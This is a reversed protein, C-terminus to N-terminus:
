HGKGEIDEMFKRAKKAWPGFPQLRLFGDFNNKAEPYRGLAMYTLGLGYYAGAESGDIEIAKKFGEEAAAYDGRDYKLYALRMVAAYNRPEISLARGYAEAAKDLEGRYHYQAGVSAWLGASDSNFRLADVILGLAEDGLASVVTNEELLASLTAALAGDNRFSLINALERAIAVKDEPSSARRELERMSTLPTYYRLRYKEIILRNTEVDKLLVAASPEWYVAVWGLKYLSRMVFPDNIIAYSIDYKDLYENSHFYLKPMERFLTHHNYMFIKREPWLKYALFGGLNGPNYMKGKIDAETIFRASASPFYEERIGFGFSKVNGRYFKFYILFIFALLLLVATGLGTLRRYDRGDLRGFLTRYYSLVPLAVIAFAANARVYKLSLYAFPLLVFIQTLDLRRLFVATLVAVIALLVWYPATEPELSPPQFEQILMAFSDRSGLAFFTGYTLLGYPNIAMAALTVLCIAWLRKLGSIDLIAGEYDKGVFLKISRTKLFVNVTEGIVFANLFLFGYVAGHLNDWLVMMPPIAFLWKFPVRGSRYGYLLYGLVGLFLFSFLQPRVLYRGLGVFVAFMLLLCAFSADTGAFRSTKFLFFGMTGVVVAKLIIVGTAGFKSFLFYFLLQSLWEHNHFARGANTYSFIEENVIAGRAFMERGNALHWFFDYNQIPYTVLLVVAALGAALFTRNWVSKEIEKSEYVSASSNGRFYLM